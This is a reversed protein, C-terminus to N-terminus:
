IEKLLAFGLLIVAMFALYRAIPGAWTGVIEAPSM